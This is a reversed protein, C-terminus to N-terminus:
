RGVAASVSAAAAAPAPAAHGTALEYCEVHARTSVYTRGDNNTASVHLVGKAIGRGCFQCVYDRRGKVTHESYFSM